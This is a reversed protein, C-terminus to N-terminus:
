GDRRGLWFRIDEVFTVRKQIEELPSKAAITEGDEPRWGAILGNGCLPEPYGEFTFFQDAHPGKLLGEEDVFLTDNNDLITVKEIHGGVAHQMDRLCLEDDSHLEIERVVRNHVDIKIARM